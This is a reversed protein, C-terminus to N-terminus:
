VRERCSARGVEVGLVFLVFTYVFVGARGGRRAADLLARVAAADTTERGPGQSQALHVVADCGAATGVYASPDELGGVVPRAGLAKLAEAREGTRALGVVEHGANVFASTVARGVYGTGGTIFVRM